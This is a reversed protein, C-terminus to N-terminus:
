VDSIIDKIRQIGEPPPLYHAGAVKADLGIIACKPYKCKKRSMRSSLSKKIERSKKQSILHELFYESKKYNGDKRYSGSERFKSEDLKYYNYADDRTEYSDYQGGKVLIWDPISYKEGNSVVYRDSGGIKSYTLHIRTKNASYEESPIKPEYYDRYGELKPGGNLISNDVSSLLYKLIDRTHSENIFFQDKNADNDGYEFVQENWNKRKVGPYITMLKLAQVNEPDSNERRGTMQTLDKMIKHSINKNQLVPILAKCVDYAEDPYATIHFKFGQCPTRYTSYKKSNPHICWASGEYEVLEDSSIGLNDEPDIYKGPNALLEKWDKTSQGKNQSGKSSSNNSGGINTNSNSSVDGGEIQIDNEIEHGLQELESHISNFMQQYDPDNIRDALHSEQNFLKKVQQYEEQDLGLNEKELEEVNTIVEKLKEYKQKQNRLNVLREAEHESIDKNSALAVKLEQIKGQRDIEEIEEFFKKIAVSIKKIEQIDDFVDEISEGGLINERDDEIEGLKDKAETLNRKQLDSHVGALGSIENKKHKTLKSLKEIDRQLDNGVKQEFKELKGRDRIIQQALQNIQSDRSSTTSKDGNNGADGTQLITNVASARMDLENHLDEKDLNHSDLLSELRNELKELDEGKSDLKELNKGLERVQIEEKGAVNGIGSDQLREAIEELERTEDLARNLESHLSERLDTVKEVKEMTQKIGKGIEESYAQQLNGHYERLNGISEQSLNLQINNWNSHNEPGHKLMEEAISVREETDLRRQTSEIGSALATVANNYNKM